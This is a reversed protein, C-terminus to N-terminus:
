ASCYMALLVIASTAAIPPMKTTVRITTEIMVTFIESRIRSERMPARSRVSPKTNPAPRPRSSQTIPQTNKAQSAWPLIGSHAAFAFVRGISSLVPLESTAIRGSFGSPSRLDKRLGFGSPSGPPGSSASGARPPGGM